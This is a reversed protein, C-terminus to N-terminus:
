PLGHVCCDPHGHRTVGTVVCLCEAFLERARVMEQDSLKMCRQYLEVMLPYTGFRVWGPIGDPGEPLFDFALPPVGPVEYVLAELPDTKQAAHLLQHLAVRSGCSVLTQIGSPWRLYYLRQM